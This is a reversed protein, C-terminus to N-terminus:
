AKEKNLVDDKKREKISFEFENPNKKILNQFNIEFIVQGFYVKLGQKEKEM